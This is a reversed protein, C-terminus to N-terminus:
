RFERVKKVGLLRLCENVISQATILLRTQRRPDHTIEARLVLDYLIRLRSRIYEDSGLLGQQEGPM